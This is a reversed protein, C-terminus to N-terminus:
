GNLCTQREAQRSLLEVLLALDLPKTLHHDFGAARSRERDARTGFGTVAVLLADPLLARLRGVLEWGDLGPLGIDVLCAGPRLRAAARLGAPGDRAVAAAYGELRAPRALVRASVVDDEVVLVSLPSAGDESTNM